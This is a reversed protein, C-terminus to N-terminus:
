PLLTEAQNLVEEVRDLWLHNGEYNHVGNGNESFVWDWFWVAEREMGRLVGIRDESLQDDEQAAAFAIQFNALREGLELTRSFSSDQTTRILELIATDGGSHCPACVESRIEESQSPSTISHHTLFGGQGDPTSRVMHCDVCTMGEQQHVSGAFHQYEPHQVKVQETGTHPNTHDVLGLANYYGLIIAPDTPGPPLNVQWTQQDFYYEVHCQACSATTGRTGEYWVSFHSRISGTFGGDLGDGGFGRGPENRHCDYCTITNKMQESVEHFGRSWTGAPDRAEMVVYDPTKCSFCSSPHADTLRPTSKVNYVAYDHPMPSYYGEAFRSGAFITNLIPYLELYDKTPRVVRDALFSETQYPFDDFWYSADLIPDYDIPRIQDPQMAVPPLGTDVANGAPPMMTSAHQEADEDAFTTVIVVATILALIVGLSALLIVIIRQQM